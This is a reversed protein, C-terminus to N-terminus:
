IQIFNRRRKDFVALESYGTQRLLDIAEPFFRAMDCPNHADSGLTVPIGKQYCLELLSVSPYFDRCPKCKGSTNLEVVMDSEKIADLTASITEGNGSSLRHGFKKVLDLHGIIDFLRSRAMKEVLSYYYDYVHRLDWEDYGDPSSDFNWNGLFHVSGITYDLPLKELISALEEERDPFYDVELGIRFRCKGRAAKKTKLMQKKWEPLKEMSMAWPVPRLCLHDSIGIEVLGETEAQDLYEAHKGSGDSLYTHMHYDVM